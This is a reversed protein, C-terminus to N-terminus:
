SKPLRKLIEKASEIGEDTLYVSTVPQSGAADIAKGSNLRHNAASLWRM